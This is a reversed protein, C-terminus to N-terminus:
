RAPTRDAFRLFASIKPAAKRGKRPVLGSRCPYANGQLLPRTGRFPQLAAGIREGWSSGCCGPM